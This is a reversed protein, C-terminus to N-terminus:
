RIPMIFIGDTLGFRGAFIVSSGDPAFSPDWEDGKTKTLRVTRGTSLEHLFLDWNGDPKAAYVVRSGDPSVQPDWEDFPTDTLRRERGEELDYQYLDFGKKGKPTAIYVVSRGDPTFVPRWAERDDATLFTKRGTLVNLLAIRANSYKESHPDYTWEAYAVERNSRSFTAIAGFQYRGPTLVTRGSGDVNMVVVKTQLSDQRGETFLIQSGNRSLMPHCEDVDNYTLRRSTAFTPDAVFLEMNRDRFSQYSIQSGDQSFMPYRDGEVDKSMRRIASVGQTEELYAGIANAMTAHGAVSLHEDYELFVNSEAARFAPLLDLVALNIRRATAVLFTNPRQMDLANAPISFERQVEELYRPYVQEKTPILVVLLRGGSGEVASKMLGLYRTFAELDHQKTPSTKRYFINYDANGRDDPQFPETWRGLPLAAPNKYKIDQLLFRLFASYTMLRDTLGVSTPEVNMFDNFSCLQLIVLRPHLSRGAKAFYNYEHGLGLGSIGVNLLIKDPFRQALQTTYLQEFEVQAGQTFSDGIVLWDVDNVTRTQDQGAAIRFGQVNTRYTVSYEKASFTQNLLGRNFYYGDEITYLNEIVYEPFAFLIIVEAHLFISIVALTNFLYAALLTHSRRRAALQLLVVFAATLAGSLWARRTLLFLIVPNAALLTALFLIVSHEVPRHEPTVTGASANDTDAQM